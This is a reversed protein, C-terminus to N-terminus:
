LVHLRPLLTPEPTLLEQQEQQPNLNSEWCGGSLECDEAAETGPFGTDEKVEYAGLMCM